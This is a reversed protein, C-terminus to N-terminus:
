TGQAEKDRQLDVGQIYFYREPNEKDKVKDLWELATFIDFDKDEFFELPLWNDLPNENSFDIEAQKLLTEINITSFIKRMRDVM